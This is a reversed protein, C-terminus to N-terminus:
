NMKTTVLEDRAERDLRAMRETLDRMQNIFGELKAFEEGFERKQAEGDRRIQERMLREVEGIVLELTVRREREIREILWKELEPTM